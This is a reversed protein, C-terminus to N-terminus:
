PLRDRGKERRTRRAAEAGQRLQRNAFADDMTIAASQPDDPNTWKYGVFAIVSPFKAEACLDITKGTREVVEDHFKPNNFGRTFPAGPMGNPAIACVLGHKKLTAWQEPGILEVSKCGLERAVACTRDASWKEGRANFCWFAVSQNVRGKRKPKPGDAGILAPRLGVTVATAATVAAGGLMTRRNPM